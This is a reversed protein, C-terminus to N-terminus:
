DGNYNYASIYDYNEKVRRERTFKFTLDGKKFVYEGNISDVSVCDEASLRYEKATQKKKKKGNEDSEITVKEVTISHDKFSLPHSTVSNPWISGTVVPKSNQYTLMTFYVGSQSPKTNLYKLSEVPGENYRNMEQCLAQLMDFNFHDFLMSVQVVAQTQTTDNLNQNCYDAIFDADLGYFDLSYYLRGPRNLMKSNITKKNCTLIFLKKSSFVGDLLTLLEQQDKDEEYVKEFEDFIIVAPEVISSIFKNFEEGCLPKNILITPVGQELMRGSCLKAILTKGSGKEGSLLVGTAVTREKFTNIIRDVTKGTTGYVKGTYVIDEVKEFYFGMQPSFGVTYTGVPIHDYVTSSEKDSVTLVNGHKVYYNSM